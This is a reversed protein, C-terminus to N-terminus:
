EPLEDNINSLEEVLAEEEFSGIEEIEEIEEIREVTLNDFEEKWSRYYDAKDSEQWKESREDMYSEIDGSIEDRWMEVDAVVDNYVGILRNLDDIRGNALRIAENVEDLYSNVEKHAAELSDRLSEKQTIQANSLKKM